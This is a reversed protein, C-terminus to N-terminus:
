RESLDQMPKTIPDFYFRDAIFMHPTGNFMIPFRIHEGLDLGQSSIEEANPTELRKSFYTWYSNGETTHSAYGRDRLFKDFSRPKETNVTSENRGIASLHKEAIDFLASGLGHNRMDYPVERHYLMGYEFDKYWESEYFALSYEMARETRSIAEFTCIDIKWRAGKQDQFHHIKKSRLLVLMNDRLHYVGSLSEGCYQGPEVKRNTTLKVSTTRGGANIILESSRGTDVFEKLEVFMAPKPGKYNDDIRLEILSFRAESQRPIQVQLQIM